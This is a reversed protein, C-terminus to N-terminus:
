MKNLLKVGELQERLKLEEAHSRTGGNPVKLTAEVEVQRDVIADLPNVDDVKLTALQELAAAHIRQKISFTQENLEGTEYDQRFGELSSQTFSGVLVLAEEPKLKGDLEHHLPLERQWTQVENQQSPRSESM